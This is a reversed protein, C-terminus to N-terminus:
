PLYYRFSTFFMNETAQPGLAPAPSVGGSWVNKILYSYQPGFQLRGKPGNYIRYWFGTSFEIVDRIDANCKGVTGPTFGNGGGPIIEAGCGSNDYTPAGYGVVKNTVADTAFHRGVHEAGANFYIDLKPVPHLQFTGLGQYSKLLALTGDPNVTADALSAAGYRGMGDGGLFHLGFDVKKKVSFRINAGIGTGTVSANYAGLPSATVVTNDLSCPHTANVDVCPFVRDRFRSFIGFIEYHGFGPEFAAKAIFDPAANFSYNATANYLGGGTGASGFVFNSANNHAAFTTQPNEIAFGLWFKNNFNKAVRFGYGRLYSFGVTYNVDITMPLAEARNDLGKSTETALTWMQGGTFTWGSIAAQAWVQRQRLVYSNSQNNNSTTGAALFDAEYYGGIKANGLKGEGLLTIRSQRGSGFFESVKAQNAGAFPIGTFPTPIDGGTAKQRWVTEAALFGGPTLTVGKYHIATPPEAIRKQTDQLSLATNTANAKIDAIDAQVASASQQAAAAQSAAADAKSVAQTAQAAAAQRTEEDRRQMEQKLAEIQQQQAALADKLAKVDEATIAPPAPPAAVKKRAKPKPATQAFALSATLLLLGGWRVLRNM